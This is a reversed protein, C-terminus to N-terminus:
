DEQVVHLPLDEGSSDLLGRIIKYELSETRWVNKRLRIEIATKNRDAKPAACAATLGKLSKTAHARDLSVVRAVCRGKELEMVKAVGISDRTGAAYIQFAHGLRVGDRAGLDLVVEKGDPNHDKITGSVPEARYALVRANFKPSEAVVRGAREPEKLFTKAPGPKEEKAKALSPKVEFELKGTALKPHSQIMGGFSIKYKGAAVCITPKDVLMEGDLIARAESEVAVQLDYLTITEGPKIVRDTPAAYNDFPPPMFVSVRGGANTTVGPAHDRLVGYTVTAEAKGVNRLKVVFRATEGQRVARSDAPVPALGMRLGDVEKGWAIADKEAREKVVAVEAKQAKPESQQKQPAVTDGKQQGMVFGFGVLGVMVAVLVATAGKLKTLLMAKLVGEALAAVKVPVAAQGAAILKAAEIASYIVSPPVGASAANQSLAAALAGASLAIGRRTLRRALMSRARVLRSAVTGEPCGLQAAVEKRTKGELDSLVIVARYHDPLRSLEQDLVPQLDAWQDPQADEADPMQTVQVEKAKRRAATRRAQLAAQHAVGYLWNGVMERPAISPAKRVLVVFTAQFADEADHHTLLRRCVGWVMRGHRYVLAALATEDHREVFRGLLEGDCAEACTGLLAARRVHEIVSTPM